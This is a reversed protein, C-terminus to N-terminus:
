TAETFGLVHQMDYRGAPKGALWAAARLAGHVFTERTHAVHRLLLTEGLTGFQVEHEGVTDGVRLAHMGIQRPPRQGTDGHRGYIVDREASRGSAQLISDRLSL